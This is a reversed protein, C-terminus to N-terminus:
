HFIRALADYAIEGANKIGQPMVTYLLTGEFPHIVGLYQCDKRGLGIQYYYNSLDLDVRYAAKTIMRKAENITPSVAPYKKIFRDLSTFDTVLRYEGVEAKPIIMSPNVFEVQVGVNEPYDLVGWDMLQDMKGALISAMESNYQPTYIKGNRVPTDAFNLGHTFHGM